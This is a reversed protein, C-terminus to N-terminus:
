GRKQPTLQIEATNYGLAAAKQILTDYIKRDLHPTRSLIWLYHRSPHGVMAWQYDPDLAIVWYPATFPWFFRVKFKGDSGPGNHWAQATARHPKGDRLCENAVDIRSDSRAAYTATTDFCGREFWHPIFGIEYWRGMYRGADVHSVVPLEPAHAEAAVCLLGLMMGPWIKKM